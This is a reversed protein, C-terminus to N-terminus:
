IVASANAVVIRRWKCAGAGGDGSHGRSLATAVAMAVAAAGSGAVEGCAAEGVVNCVVITPLRLSFLQPAASVLLLLLLVVLLKVISSADTGATLSPKRPHEIRRRAFFLRLLM